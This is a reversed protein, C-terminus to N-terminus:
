RNFIKLADEEAIRIIPEYKNNPFYLFEEGTYIYAEDEWYFLEGKEFNTIM